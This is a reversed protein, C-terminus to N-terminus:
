SSEFVKTHKELDKLNSVMQKLLKLDERTKRRKDMAAILLQYNAEIFNAM